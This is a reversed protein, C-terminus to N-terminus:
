QEKKFSFKWFDGHLMIIFPIIELRGVLMNIAFIIKTFPSLTEFAGYSGYYFVPNVNGLTSVSGMIGMTLNEEFASVVISSIILIMFYLIVFMLIQKLVDDVIITKGLKIQTVANPHIIRIIERWLYKLIIVIRVVKIGGSASGASGGVLMLLFILIKASKSWSEFDPLISGTSTIISTVQFLAKRLAEGFAYGKLCTLTLLVWLSVMLIIYLYTKFETSNKLASFQRQIYVKYQLSFNVGALFMFIFGILMFTPNLVHASSLQNYSFGSASITSFSNCIADFLPMRNVKLLIMELVTLSVYIGWLAAATQKIRPTIKDETPGPTEAFFMQRGAVAFQPFIAIFLVIVGMGGLWESFCCWFYITKSFAVNGVLISGTTTISAVGEFFADIPHLGYFLFPLGTMLALVIWTLAVIFLGEKKRLDNFNRRGGALYKILSGLGVSILGSYVFPMISSYDHYYLAILIPMFIMIGFGILVVGIASLIYNLRMM